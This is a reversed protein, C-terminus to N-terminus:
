DVMELAMLYVIRFNGNYQMLGSDALVKRREVIEVSSNTKIINGYPTLYEALIGQQYICERKPFLHLIAKKNQPYLLILRITIFPM